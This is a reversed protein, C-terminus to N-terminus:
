PLLIFENKSHKETFISSIIRFPFNFVTKKNTNKIRGNLRLFIITIVTNLSQYFYDM